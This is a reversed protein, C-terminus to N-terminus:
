VNNVQAYLVQTIKGEIVCGVLPRFFTVKTCLDVHVWPHEGRIRGYEKGLPYKLDSYALPVGDITFRLQLHTLTLSPSTSPNCIVGIEEDYQFLMDNLQQKVADLPFEAASPSLAVKLVISSTFFHDALQNEM